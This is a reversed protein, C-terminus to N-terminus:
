MLVYYRKTFVSTFTSMFVEATKFGKTIWEGQKDGRSCHQGSEEKTHHLHFDQKSKRGQAQMMQGSNQEETVYDKGRGEEERRGKWWIEGKETYSGSYM